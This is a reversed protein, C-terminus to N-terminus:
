KVVITIYHDHKFPFFVGEFKGLGQFPIELDKLLHHQREYESKGQNTIIWIGGSNLRDYAHKMLSLPQYESLPLGWKLLPRQYVFPLFMTVVDYNEKFDLFNIPHYEARSLPKIYFHAHDYRSSFDQYRRYADIEIGTLKEIAWHNSYFHHLAPAYNFHKSGVDVAKIRKKSIKKTDFVSELLELTHLNVRYDENPLKDYVTQFHYNSRLAREKEKLNDKLLFSQDGPKLKIEKSKRM